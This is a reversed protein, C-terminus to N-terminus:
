TNGKQIFLNMGERIRGMLLMRAFYMTEYKLYQTANADWLYMLRPPFEEDGLWLQLAIALGDFLPIAYCMDGMPLPRGELGECASRFAEPHDQFFLANPDSADELLNQHFMLGFDRMNKWRHSLGRDPRSDCLLDLLTMVESHTNADEWSGQVKRSLHGTKRCLRYPTSLMTMYLYDDDHKLCFKAILSEQDYCLFHNQAQQVQIQYNDKKM